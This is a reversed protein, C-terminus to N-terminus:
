KYEGTHTHAYMLTHVHMHKHTHTHVSRKSTHGHGTHAALPRRDELDRRLENSGNTSMLDQQWLM